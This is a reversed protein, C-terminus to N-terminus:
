KAKSADAVKNEYDGVPQLITGAFRNKSPAARGAAMAASRVEDNILSDMGKRLEAIADRVGMDASVPYKDFYQLQSRVTEYFKNYRQQIKNKVDESFKKFQDPTLNPEKRGRVKDILRKYWPREQYSEAKQNIETLKQDVEKDLQKFTDKYPKLKEHQAALQELQGPQEGAM